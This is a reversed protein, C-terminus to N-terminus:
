RATNAAPLSFTMESERRGRAPWAPLLLAEPQGRRKYEEPPAARRGRGWEIKWNKRPSMQVCMCMSMRYVRRLTIAPSPIWTHTCIQMESVASNVTFLFKAEVQPSLITVPPDSLFSHVQCSLRCGPWSSPKQGALSSRPTFWILEDHCTFSSDRGQM